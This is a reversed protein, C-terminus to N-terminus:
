AATESAILRTLGAMLRATIQGPKGNGVPAGDVRTVPLIEITTGALFLETLHSLAMAPFPDEIVEIGEARAVEIVAARTIGGLISTGEPHTQVIDGVVAFVNTRSGETILGDRILVAEWAGAAAAEQNALVNGLLNISKIDVRGWRLDPRTVVAAGAEYLARAPAELPRAIAFVTPPVSAPPFAHGRSEAAGRTVQVYVTADADELGNAAVLEAFVRHWDIAPLELRIGAASRQLRALHADLRFPRGRYLRYAEYVGDGFLLGRDLLPVSAQAAAVLRGSLWVVGSM